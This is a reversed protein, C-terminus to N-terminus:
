AGKIQQDKIARKISAMANRHAVNTKMRVRPAMPLITAFRNGVIVKYHRTGTEIRWPLGSTALMDHMADPIRPTNM